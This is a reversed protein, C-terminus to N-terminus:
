FAVFEQAAIELKKTVALHISQPATSPQLSWAAGAGTSSGSSGRSAAVVTFVARVLGTSKTQNTGHPVERSPIFQGLVESSFNGFALSDETRAPCWVVPTAAPTITVKASAAAGAAPRTISHGYLTVNNGLDQEIMDLTKFEPKDSDGVAPEKKYIMAGGFEVSDRKYNAIRTWRWAFAQQEPELSQSVLSVFKGPGIQGLVTGAAIVVKKDSTNHLWVRLVGNKTRALVLRVDKFVTSPVFNSLTTSKLVTDELTTVRTGAAINDASGGIAPPMGPEGPNGGVAPQEKTDPAPVPASSADGGDAPVNFRGRWQAIQEL